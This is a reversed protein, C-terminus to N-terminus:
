EAIASLSVDHATSEPRHPCAVGQSQTDLSWRGVPMDLFAETDLFSLMM